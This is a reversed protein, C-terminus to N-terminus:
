KLEFRVPVEFWSALASGGQAAPSFTWQSVAATAAADLEKNGSSLKTEIKEAQGNLGVYAALLVTGQAGQELAALPYEPLVKFTIAPPIIPLPLAPSVPAPAATAQAVPQAKVLVVPEAATRVTVEEGYFIPATKTGIQPKALYIGVTLAMVLILLPATNRVTLEKLM